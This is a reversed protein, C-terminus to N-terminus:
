WSYFWSNNWEGGNAWAWGRGQGNASGGVPWERTWSWRHRHHACAGSPASAAARGSPRVNPRQLTQHFRWMRVSQFASSVALNLHSEILNILVKDSCNPWLNQHRLMQQIEWTRPNQMSDQEVQGLQLNLITRLKVM